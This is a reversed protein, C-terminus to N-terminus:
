TETAARTDVHHRAPYQQIILSQSRHGAAPPDAHHASGRAPPVSRPAPFSSRRAPLSPRQGAPAAPCPASPATASCRSSRPAAWNQHRAPASAAALFCPLCGPLGPADMVHSTGSRNRRTRARGPPHRQGLHRGTRGAPLPERRTRPAPGARGARPGSRTRCPAHRAAGPRPAQSRGKSRAAGAPTRTCALM